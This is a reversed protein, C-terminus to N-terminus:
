EGREERKILSSKGGPEKKNRKKEKKKKKPFKKKEEQMRVRKKFREGKKPTLGRKGAPFGRELVTTAKTAQGRLCKKRKETPGEWQSAGRGL